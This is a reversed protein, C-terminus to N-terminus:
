KLKNVLHNYLEESGQNFLVTPKWGITKYALQSCVVKGQYDGPRQNIHEIVVDGHHLESVREAVRNLTIQEPGELNLVRNAAEPKLALRNGRAHDKVYLFNRYIDGTGTITLPKGNIANTMFKSLITDPHCGPGYAIGYRLITYEFNYMEHFNRILAECTLKCTTYVHGSNNIMLDTEEDVFKDNSVSYVWVTSSFIIRPVHLENLLYLINTLAVINREVALVPTRLNEASDSIAAFMYVVDFQSSALARRAQDIDVVDAKIYKTNKVCSPVLDIVTVDHGHDLLEMSTHTGIFGSGGVIAINLGSM